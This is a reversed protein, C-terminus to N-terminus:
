ESVFAGNPSAGCPLCAFVFVDQDTRPKVGQPATARAACRVRGRRRGGQKLPVAFDVFAGCASGTLTSPPLLPCRRSVHLRALSHPKTCQTAGPQGTCIRAQFECRGNCVGDLDCTPDGDACNVYKEQRVALTGRFEAYAYCDSGLASGNPLPGGGSFITAFSRVAFISLLVLAPIAV